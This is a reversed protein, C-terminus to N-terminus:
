AGDSKFDGERKHGETFPLFFIYVISETIFACDM